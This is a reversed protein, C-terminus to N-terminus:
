TLGFGYFLRGLFYGMLVFQGPITDVLATRWDHNNLYNLLIEFVHNVAFVQVNWLM